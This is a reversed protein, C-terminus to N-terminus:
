FKFKVRSDKDLNEYLLYLMDANEVPAKVTVSTWKGMEKTSFPVDDATTNCSDAVTQVMDTVFTGDKAGVIKMTFRCPYEVLAEFVRKKEGTKEDEYLTYGDKDYEPKTVDNIKRDPTGLAVYPKKKATGFGQAVPSGSEALQEKGLMLAMKTDFDPPLPTKPTSAEEKEDDPKEDPVQNFFSGAPSNAMAILSSRHQSPAVTFANSLSLTTAAALTLTFKM